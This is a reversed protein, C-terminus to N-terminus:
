KKPEQSPCPMPLGGQEYFRRLDEEIQRREADKARVDHSHTSEHTM